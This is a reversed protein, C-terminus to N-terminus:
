AIFRDKIWDVRSVMNRYATKNEESCVNQFYSHELSKHLETSIGVLWTSINAIRWEFASNNIWFKEATSVLLNIDQENSDIYDNILDVIKEVSDNLNFMWIDEKISEIRQRLQESSRIIRDATENVETIEQNEMWTDQIEQTPNQTEM